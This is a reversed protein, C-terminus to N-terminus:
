ADPGPTLESVRDGLSDVGGDLFEGIAEHVASVHDPVQEPLDTPPGQRDDDGNSAAAPADDNSAEEPPNESAADSANENPVDSANGPAAAGVGALLVLAALAVAILKGNM